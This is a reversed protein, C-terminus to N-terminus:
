TGGGDRSRLARVQELSMYRPRWRGAAIADELPTPPTQMLRSWEEDSYKGTSLNFLRIEGKRAVEMDQRMNTHGYHWFNWPTSNPDYDEGYPNDCIPVGEYAAWAGERECRDMQQMLSETSPVVGGPLLPGTSCISVPLTSGIGLERAQAYPNSVPPSPPLEVREPLFKRIFRTVFSM